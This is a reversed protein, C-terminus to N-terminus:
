IQGRDCLILVPAFVLVLSPLKRTQFPQEGASFAVHRIIPRSKPFKPKACAIKSVDSIKMFKGKRSLAVNLGISGAREAILPNWREHSNLSIGATRRTDWTRKQTKIWKRAEPRLSEHNLLPATKSIFEPVPDGHQAAPIYRLLISDV